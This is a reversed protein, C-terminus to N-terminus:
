GRGRGGGPNYLEGAVGGPVADVGAGVGHVRVGGLPRGIVQRPSSELPAFTSDVTCEAPGYYNLAFVGDAARLREWLREPVTEGGLGIWSPRWRPNDLLGHDVLVQLYSPTGGVTDLGARAAYELYADPDTWTVEDLVHLEHGAYLAFMQDCSADFSVSTTLGVRLREGTRFILPCQDAFLNSLGGHTAVVGKPRGTSGSTYIVYAPHAPDIAVAPDTAPCGAVLGATKPDDTVLWGASGDRLRDRTRSDTVMLVPRADDLMYAIRTAPYEPDVALYAAGTKLVALIAVVLEASRPLAVAVLREPGAGRAILAHALRNARADLEAYTLSAEPGVLAVADPTARVQARFLEPLSEAFVQAAPGTGLAALEGHEEATLLGFRSLRRQPDAVVARLLREWREIM